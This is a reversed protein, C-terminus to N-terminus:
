VRVRRSSRGVKNYNPQHQFILDGELKDAEEISVCCITEWSQVPIRGERKHTKLRSRVNVSQGVYICAGASDFLLYVCPTGKPPTSQHNLPWVGSVGVSDPPCDKWTMLTSVPVGLAAAVKVSAYPINLQRSWQWWEVMQTPTWSERSLAPIIAEFAEQAAEILRDRKDVLLGIHQRTADIATSVGGAGGRRHPMGLLASAEM